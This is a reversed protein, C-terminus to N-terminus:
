FNSNPACSLNQKNNHSVLVGDSYLPHFDEEFLKKYSVKEPFLDGSANLGLVAGITSPKIRFSGYPTEFTNKDLNFSNALEKLLKHHVRM